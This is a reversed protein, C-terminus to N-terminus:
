LVEETPTRFLANWAFLHLRGYLIQSVIFGALFQTGVGDESHVLDGGHGIHNVRQDNNFVLKADM